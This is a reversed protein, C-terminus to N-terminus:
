TKNTFYKFTPSSLIYDQLFRPLQLSQIQSTLNPLNRDIFFNVIAELAYVCFGYSQGHRIIM